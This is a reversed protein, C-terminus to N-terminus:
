IKFAGAADESARVTSALLMCPLAESDPLFDVMALTHANHTHGHAIFNRSFNMRVHANM